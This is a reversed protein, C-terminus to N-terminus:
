QSAVVLRLARTSLGGIPALTGVMLVMGIIAAVILLTVIINYEAFVSTKRRESATEVGDSQQPRKGEHALPVLELFSGTQGRM